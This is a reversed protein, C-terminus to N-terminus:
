RIRDEHSNEGRVNFLRDPLNITTKGGKRKIQDANNDPFVVRQKSSVKRM